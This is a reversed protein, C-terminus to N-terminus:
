PSTRAEVVLSVAVETDSLRGEIGRMVPDSSTGADVRVVDAFGAARLEATLSKEDWLYGRYHEAETYVNTLLDIPHEVTYGVSRNREMLSEAVSGGELYLRAIREVDPTAVRLVGDTALADHACRLFRRAAPLRMHEIVNDAFVHSLNRIPWPETADLYYRANWGVDTSLWGELDTRGAGIVVRRPVQTAIARRLRMAALPRNVGAVVRVATGKWTM